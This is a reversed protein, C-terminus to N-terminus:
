TRGVSLTRRMRIRSPRQDVRDAADEPREDEVGDDRAVKFDALSEVEAREEEADGDTKRAATPAANSHSVSRV